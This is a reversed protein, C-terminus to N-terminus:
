AQETLTGEEVSAQVLMVGAQGRRFLKRRVVCLKKREEGKWIGENMTVLGVCENVALM